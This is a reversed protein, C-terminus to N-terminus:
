AGMPVATAPSAGGRPVSGPPPLEQVFPRPALPQGPGIKGDKSVEYIMGTELGYSTGHRIGPDRPSQKEPPPVDSRPNDQGLPEVGRAYRYDGNRLETRFEIRLVERDPLWTISFVDTQELPGTPRRDKLAQKRVKDMEDAFGQRKRLDAEYRKRLERIAEAVKIPYQPSGDLMKLNTAVFSEEAPSGHGGNVQVEALAYPANVGWPQLTHTTAM